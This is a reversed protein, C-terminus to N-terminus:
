KIIEFKNKCVSNKAKGKLSLGFKLCQKICQLPGENQVETVQIKKKKKWIKLIVDIETDIHLDYHIHQGHLYALLSSYEGHVFFHFGAM